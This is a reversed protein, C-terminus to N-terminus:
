DFFSLYKLLLQDKEEQSITVNSPPFQDPYYRNYLIETVIPEITEMIAQHRSKLKMPPYGKEQQVMDIILNEWCCDLPISDIIYVIEILKGLHIQKRILAFITQPNKYTIVLYGTNVVPLEQFAINQSILRDRFSGESQIIDVNVGYHTYM